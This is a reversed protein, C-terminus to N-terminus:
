ENKPTNEMKNDLWSELFNYFDNYAYKEIMPSHGCKELEKYELQKIYTKLYEKTMKGPHPDYDGHIMVVPCCINTFQLPYLGEKQCRVMDNWTEDYAQRDFDEDITEIIKQDIRCYTDTVMHWKMVQEIYPLKLDNIFEPNNIIHKKIRTKREDTLKQRANETFTGCGILAICSVKQPYKSAFALGLMAGWSEGVLAPANDPSVADILSNLDEIHIDVSLKIGGSGRQWPSYTTFRTSLRRAIPEAGGPSGPGGHLVIICHEGEGFQGIRKGQIWDEFM